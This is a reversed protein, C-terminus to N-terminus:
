NFVGILRYTPKIINKEGDWVGCKFAKIGSPLIEINYFPYLEEFKPNRNFKDMQYEIYLLTKDEFDFKRSDIFVSDTDNYKFYAAKGITVRYNYWSNRCECLTVIKEKEMISLNRSINTLKQSPLHFVFQTDISSEPDPYDPIIGIFIKSCSDGIASYTFTYLYRLDKSRYHKSLYKDLTKLMKQRIPELNLIMTGSTNFVGLVGSDINFMEGNRKQVGLISRNVVPTVLMINLSNRLIGKNLDYLLYNGYSVLGPKCFSKNIVLINESCLHFLDYDRWFYENVSPDLINMMVSWNEESHGFGILSDAVANFYSQMFSDLLYEKMDRKDLCYWHDNLVIAKDFSFNFALEYKFPVVSVGKNDIYGWKSTTHDQAPAYLSASADKIFFWFLAIIILQRKM